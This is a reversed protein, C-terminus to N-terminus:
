LAGLVLIHVNSVYWTVSPRAHLSLSLLEHNLSAPPTETITMTATGAAAHQQAPPQSQASNSNMTVAAISEAVGIHNSSEAQQEQSDSM